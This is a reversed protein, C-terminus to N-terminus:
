LNNKNGEGEREKECEWEEGEGVAASCISGHRSMHTQGSFWLGSDRGLRKTRM